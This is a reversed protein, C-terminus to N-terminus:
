KATSVDNNSGSEGRGEEKRGEWEGEGGGEKRGM